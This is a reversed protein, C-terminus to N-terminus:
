LDACRRGCAPLLSTDTDPGEAVAADDTDTIEVSDIYFNTYGPAGNWGTLVARIQSLNTAM